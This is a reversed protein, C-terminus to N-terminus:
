VVQVSCRTPISYRRLYGFIILTLATQHWELDSRKVRQREVKSCPSPLSGFGPFAVLGLGLCFGVMTSLIASSLKIIRHNMHM